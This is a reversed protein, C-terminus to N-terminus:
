ENLFEDRLIGFRFVDFYRGEQFFDKRLTAEQKFGFKLNSKISAINDSVCGATVKHLNLDMFAYELILRTTESGIGKGRSNVDGIFRGFEAKRNKWDIPGLKINGIYKDDSLDCIAFLISNSNSNKHVFDELEEITKPFHGSWLGKRNEQLNILEFYKDGFLELDFPRLYIKEGKIFRM